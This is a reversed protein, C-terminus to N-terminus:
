KVILGSSVVKSFKMMSKNFVSMRGGNLPIDWFFKSADGSDRFVEYVIRPTTYGAGMANMLSEMLDPKHVVSKREELAYIWEHPDSKIRYCFMVEYLGNNEPKSPDKWEVVTGPKFRLKPPKQNSVTVSGRREYGNLTTSSPLRIKRIM